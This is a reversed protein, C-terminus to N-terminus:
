YTGPYRTGGSSAAGGQIQLVRKHEGQFRLAERRESAKLGVQKKARPYKKQIQRVARVREQVKYPDSPAPAMASTNGFSGFGPFGYAGRQISSVTQAVPATLQPGVPPVLRDDMGKGTMKKSIKRHVTMTKKKKHDLPLTASYASDSVAAPVHKTSTLGVTINGNVYAEKHATSKADEKLEQLQEKDWRRKYEVPILRADAM